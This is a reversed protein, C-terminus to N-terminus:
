CSEACGKLSQSLKPHAAVLITVLLYGFSDSMILLSYLNVADVEVVEAVTLGRIVGLCEMCFVSQQTKIIFSFFEIMQWHLFYDLESMLIYIYIQAISKYM